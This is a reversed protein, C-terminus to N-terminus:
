QPETDIPVGAACLQEVRRHVDGVTLYLLPSPAGGTLLLRTNDVDFFLLGPPDYRATPPVGLLLAYFRAARDLDEAHQAVQVFRSPM